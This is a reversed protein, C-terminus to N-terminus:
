GALTAFLSRIEDEVEGPDGLTRAVEERLRERYRKRLRLASARAAEESLGLEGAIRAYPVREAGGLLAPCLAEFQRAKGQGAM